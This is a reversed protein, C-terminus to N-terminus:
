GYVRGHFSFRGRSHVPVVGPSVRAGDVALYGFGQQWNAIGPFDLYGGVKRIDGLWGAELGFRQRDATEFVLGLRHTHGQVISQGHRLMEKRASYAAKTDLLKGHITSVGPEIRWPQARVKINQEEMKMLDPLSPLVDLLAPAFASAYTRLRDDHNGFIWNIECDPGAAQRLEQWFVIGHDVENRVSGIYEEAKGKSWRSPAKLDLLDGVQVIRAPQEAQIMELLNATAYRDHDPLHVDPIVVTLGNM